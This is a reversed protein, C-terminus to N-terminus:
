VGGVKRPEHAATLANVPFNSALVEADPVVRVVCLAVPAAWANPQPFIVVSGSDALPRNLPVTSHIAPTL